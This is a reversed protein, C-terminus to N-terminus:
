GRETIEIHQDAVASGEGRDGGLLDLLEDVDRGALRSGPARNREIYERLFALHEHERRRTDARKIADLARRAHDKEWSDVRQARGQHFDFARNWTILFRGKSDRFVSRVAAVRDKRYHSPSLATAIEACLTRMEDVDLDAMSMTVDERSNPSFEGAKPVYQKSTPAMPSAEM